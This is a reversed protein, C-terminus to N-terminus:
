KELNNQMFYNLLIRELDEMHSATLQCDFFQKEYGWKAFVFGINNRDSAQYDAYLDGVYLVKKNTFRADALMLAIMEYKSKCNIGAMDNAYVLSFYKNWSFYNLIKNTPIIRKNTALHINIGANSLKSLMLDAGSYPLSSKFGENDYIEKFCSVLKAISEKDEIGTVKKLTVELPPGIIDATLPCIAKISNQSLSYELSTLISPASDILTGDLDFIVHCM